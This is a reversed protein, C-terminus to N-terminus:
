EVVIKCSKKHMGLAGKNMFVRDRVSCKIEVAAAREQGALGIPGTM